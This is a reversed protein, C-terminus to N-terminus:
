SSIIHNEEEEQLVAVASSSTLVTVNSLRLMDTSVTSSNHEDTVTEENDRVFLSRKKRQNEEERMFEKTAVGRILFMRLVKEAYYSEKHLEIDQAKPINPILDIMKAFVVSVLVFSLGLLIRM